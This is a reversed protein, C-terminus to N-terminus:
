RLRINHFILLLMAVHRDLVQQGYMITPLWCFRIPIHTSIRKQPGDQNAQSWFAKCVLVGLDERHIWLIKPVRYTNSIVVCNDSNCFPRLLHM